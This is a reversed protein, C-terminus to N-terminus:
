EREKAKTIDILDYIWISLFVLMFGTLMPIPVWDDEVLVLTAIISGVFLSAGLVILFVLILKGM